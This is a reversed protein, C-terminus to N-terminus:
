IASQMPFSSVIVVLVNIVAWILPVWTTMAFNGAEYVWGLILGVLSGALLAELNSIVLYAVPVAWMTRWNKWQIAFAFLAVIFHTGGHLILTWCLTFWWIDTSHYLYNQNEPVGIVPLHLSPFPPVSYGLPADDSM